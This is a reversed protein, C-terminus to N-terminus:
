PRIEFTFSFVTSTFTASLTFISISLDATVVTSFSLQSNIDSLPNDIFILRNLSPAILWDVIRLGCDAISHGRRKCKKGSEGDEDEEPPIEGGIM